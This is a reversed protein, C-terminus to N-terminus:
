RYGYVQITTGVACNGGNMIITLGHYANTNFNAIGVIHSGVGNGSNAALGFSTGKTYTTEYPNWLEIEYPTPGNSLSAQNGIYLASGNAVSWNSTVGNSYAQWGGSYYNTTDDTSGSRLRMLIYNDNVSSAGMLKIRYNKYASSFVGNVSLYSAATTVSVIGNAAISAAGSGVTVSTPVIPVLGSKNTTADALELADVRAPVTSGLSSNAKVEVWQSSDGDAYYMFMIGDNTNYWLNGAVPSTPATPSAVATAGNAATVRWAGKTSDYTYQGYVQGNTPSSPFDLAAM